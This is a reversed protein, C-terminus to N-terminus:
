QSAEEIITFVVCCLPEDRMIREIRFRSDDVKLAQAIGDRGPKFASEANDDDRRVRSPPFFDLRVNIPGEAPVQLRANLALAWCAHRCGKTARIKEWRHRHNPSCAIPPYDCVIRQGAPLTVGDLSRPLPRPKPAARKKKPDCRFVTM